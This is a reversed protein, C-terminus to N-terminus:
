KVENIVQYGRSVADINPKAREGSFEESIIELAADLPFLDTVGILAGFLITNIIPRGFIEHAMETANITHIRSHKIWEMAEKKKSSNILLIGDEKLGDFVGAMELLTDNTIIIIDPDYVYSKVSIPSDSVRTFAKVPAGRVETGFFPLSHAWKDCRTATKGIIDSLTVVGEGGLGHLRIEYV